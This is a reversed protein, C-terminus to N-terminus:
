FASLLLKTLNQDNENFNSLLMRLSDALGNNVTVPKLLKHCQKTFKDDLVYKVLSINYKVCYNMNRSLLTDCKAKQSPSSWLYFYFDKCSSSGHLVSKLLNMANKECTRLITSINLANLLPSSRLYKSLGLSSKVLKAQLKDMELLEHLRLPQCENAYTLIPQLKNM